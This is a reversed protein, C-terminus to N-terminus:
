IGLKAIDYYEIYVVKKVRLNIYLSEEGLFVIVSKQNILSVIERVSCSLYIRGFYALLVDYARGNGWNNVLM